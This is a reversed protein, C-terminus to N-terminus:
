PGRLHDLVPAVEVQERRCARRLNPTEDVARGKHRIMGQGLSGLREPLLGAEFPVQQGRLVDGGGDQARRYEHLREVHHEPPRHGKDGTALPPGDGKDGGAVYGAGSDPGKLSIDQAEVLDRALSEALIDIPM